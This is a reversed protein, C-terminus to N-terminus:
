PSLSVTAGSAFLGRSPERATIYLWPGFTVSGLSWTSTGPVLLCLLDGGGHGVAKDGANQAM